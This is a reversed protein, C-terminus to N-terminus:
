NRTITKDAVNLVGSLRIVSEDIPQHSTIIFSVGQESKERILGYLTEVAATDITILPEDLLILQPTGTFALLLSLKKLMGSSYSSVPFNIYAHIGLQTAVENIWDKDGGKTNMYLALLDNGTLYAPFLPEAEAYNIAKRLAVPNYKNSIDERLLIEGSFPILGAIVKMCTTKGAGNQGKLWHIGVPVELFPIELVPNGQYAKRVNKLTIVSESMHDHKLFTFIFFESIYVCNKKLAIKTSLTM